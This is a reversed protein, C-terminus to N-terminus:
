HSWCRLAILGNVKKFLQPYKNVRASVQSAPIPTGDARKYDGAHNVAKAIDRSSMPSGNRRLVKAIADHLKLQSM